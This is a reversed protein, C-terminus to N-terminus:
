STSATSSRSAAPTQPEAGARLARRRKWFRWAMTGARGPARALGEGAAVSVARRLRLRPDDILAFALRYRTGEDRPLVPWRPDLVPGLAARRTRGAPAERVEPPSPAGLWSAHTLAVALATRTRTAGALRDVEEWDLGRPAKESGGGSAKEWERGSAKESGGGSAKEWERGRAKESGGGSGEEESDLGRPAKERDGGNAAGIVAAFDVSWILREFVHFPKAAHAALAVLEVEPPLGFSTAGAVTVPRRREWLSALDVRSAADGPSSLAAHLEVPLGPLDPHLLVTEYHSGAQEAVRWGAAELVTRATGHLRPPLLLDVDDMPRMWPQPYREALAPGKFVVAEVGAEALPWLLREALKPRLLAAQARCRMVDRRLREEWRGGAPDALPAALRWVLGSVRQWVAAEGAVALDGGARLAAEWGAADPQMRCAAWLLSATAEEATGTV